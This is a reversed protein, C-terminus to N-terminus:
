DPPTGSGLSDLRIRAITTLPYGGDSRVGVTAFLESCSLAVPATWYWGQSPDGPLVWSVGDALRTVRTGYGAARAAYGCGVVFPSVGFGNPTESRLRRGAVHTSDTAYPSTMIDVTPFLGSPDTRQSGYLWVLDHGDSGLDAAGRSIDGDFSMLDAAGGAATWVENQQVAVSSANWFLADGVFVQDYAGLAGGGPAVVRQSSTLDLGAYLQMTSTDLIGPAGVIFDHVVSRDFHTSSAPVLASTTGAIAGGGYGDPSQIVRYVFRGANVSARGLLCLNTNAEFIAQSAGGDVDGIVALVASGELRFVQMTVTGPPSTSAAVLSSLFEGNASAPWRDVM